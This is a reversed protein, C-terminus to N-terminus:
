EKLGEKLIEFVEKTVKNDKCVYQTYGAQLCRAIEDAGTHATMAIIPIPKSQNEKEFDRIMKATELGNLGPMEVDLFIIDYPKIKIKKIVEEGNEAFDFSLGM